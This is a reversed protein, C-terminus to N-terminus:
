SWWAGWSSLGTWHKGCSLTQVKWWSKCPEEKWIYVDTRNVKEEEKELGVPRLLQQNCAHKWRRFRDEIRVESRLQSRQAAQRPKTHRERGEYHAPALQTLKWLQNSVDSGLKHSKTSADWRTMICTNVHCFSAFPVFSPKFFFFQNTFMFWCLVTGRRYKWLVRFVM